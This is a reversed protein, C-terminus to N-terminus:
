FIATQTATAGAEAAVAAVAAQSGSTGHLQLLEIREVRLRRLAQEVQDRLLSPRGALRWEGSSGLPRRRGQDHDGARASVSLPGRRAVGRRPRRRVPLGLGGGYRYATDILTVGLEVARRIVAGAPQHMAGFGLRRVELDGGIRFTSSM